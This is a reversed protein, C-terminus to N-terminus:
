SSSCRWRPASSRLLMTPVPTVRRRSKGRLHLHACALGCRASCRDCIPILRRRPARSQSPAVHGVLHPFGDVSVQEIAMAPPSTSLPPADLFWGAHETAAHARANDNGPQQARAPAAAPSDPWPAALGPSVSPLGPGPGTEPLPLPLPRLSPQKSNRRSNLNSSITSQSHSSIFSGLRRAVAPRASSASQVRSPWIALPPM